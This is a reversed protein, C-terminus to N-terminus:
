LIKKIRIFVWLGFVFYIIYGAWLRLNSFATGGLASASALDFLLLEKGTGGLNTLTFTSSTATSSSFQSLLLQADTLYQFPYKTEIKDQLENFKNLATDNPMFLFTLVKCSGIGFFTGWIGGSGYFDCANFVSYTSSAVETLQDISLYPSTTANPDTIIFFIDELDPACTASNATYWRTTQVCTGLGYSDYDAGYYYINGSSVPAYSAQPQVMFAYLRNSPNVKYDFWKNTEVVKEPVLDFNFLSEQNIDDWDYCCWTQISVPHVGTTSGVIIQIQFFNRYYQGPPTSTGEIDLIITQITTTGSPPTFSQIVKGEQGGIFSYFYDDKAYNGFSVAQAFTLVSFLGILVIYVTLARKYETRVKAITKTM